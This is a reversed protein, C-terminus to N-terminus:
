LIADHFSSLVRGPLRHDFSERTLTRETSVENLPDAPALLTFDLETMESLRRISVQYTPPVFAQTVIGDVLDRQSILYATASAQGSRHKFAVIKWFALPIHVGRYVPDTDELVPGTFVTIRSREAKAQNLLYDELGLWTTANQNFNRHQPSCNTYHFTDDNATRAERPSGWAPDLRRVLHGRDFDNRAYLENGIQVERVLRPDFFWRDDRDPRHGSSGDVNVATYLALRRPAHVVLSFHQYDVVTPDAGPRPRLNVAALTRQQTTLEPLPVTWSLFDPDYGARRDYRPDVSQTEEVPASSDSPRGAAKTFAVDGAATSDLRVDIRLPITLLLGDNEAGWSHPSSPPPAPDVAETVSPASATGLPPVVPAAPMGSREPTDHEASATPPNLLAELLQQQVPGLTDAVSRIWAHISSMRVGENATWRITAEGRDPTWVTGDLALLKGAENKAPVGSHHIGLVEWQNNYLPSGSSGPATDTHYHLFRELRDVLENQQLSIHKERGEPHQIINISEGLLIKGQQATTRHFGFTSLPVAPLGDQPLSQPAVAVVTCDLEEDTLFLTEPDLQFHHTRLLSGDIGNQFDFEIRSTRATQADPLVHNNTMALVPSALFGTGFGRQQVRDRIHIRGVSRAVTVGLELFAIGLLNNHGIFRELLVSRGIEAESVTAGASEVGLTTQIIPQQLLHESRLRLRDPDDVALLSGDQTHAAKIKTTISSRPQERTQFREITADIIREPISM